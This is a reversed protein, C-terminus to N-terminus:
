YKQDVSIILLEMLPYDYKGKTFKGAAMNIAIDLMKNAQESQSLAHHACALVAYSEEISFSNFSEIAAQYKGISYLFATRTHRIYEDDRPFWDLCETYFNDICAKDKLFFGYVIAFRVDERAM